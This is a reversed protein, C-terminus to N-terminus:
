LTWLAWGIGISLAGLATRTPAWGVEAVFASAVAKVLGEMVPILGLILLMLGLAHVAIM